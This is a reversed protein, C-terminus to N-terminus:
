RGPRPATGTHGGRCGTAARPEWSPGPCRAAARSAPRVAQRRRGAPGIVPAPGYSEPMAPSLSSMAGRPLHSFIAALDDPHSIKTGRNVEFRNPARDATWTGLGAREPVTTQGPKGLHAPTRHPELRVQATFTHGGTHDPREIGDNELSDDFGRGLPWCFQLSAPFRRGPYRGPAAARPPMSGGVSAWCAMKRWITSCAPLTAGTRSACNLEQVVVGLSCQSSHKSMSTPASTGSSGTAVSRGNPKPAFM